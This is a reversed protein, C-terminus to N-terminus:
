NEESEGEEEDEDEDTDSDEDTDLEDDTTEAEDGGNLDNQDDDLMIKSKRQGTM